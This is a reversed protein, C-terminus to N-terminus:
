LKPNISANPTVTPQSTNRILAFSIIGAMVSTRMPPPGRVLNMSGSFQGIHAPAVVFVFSRSNQLLGSQPALSNRSIQWMAFLSARSISPMDSSVAFFIILALMAIPGNSIKSRVTADINVSGPKASFDASFKNLLMWAAFFGSNFLNM